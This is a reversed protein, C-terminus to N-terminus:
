LGEFTVVDSGALPVASATPGSAVAGDPLDLTWVQVLVKLTSWSASSTHIPPWTWGPPTRSSSWASVQLPAGTDPEGRKNLEWATSLLVHGVGGGVYVDFNPDHSKLMVVDLTVEEGQRHCM